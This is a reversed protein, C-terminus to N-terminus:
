KGLNIMSPTLGPNCHIAQKVANQVVGPVKCPKPVIHNHLNSCRYNFHDDTTIGTLWRDHEIDLTEPYVYVVYVPCNDTSVLEASPHTPCKKTVKSGAFQCDKESCMKSGTCAAYRIRVRRKKGAINMERVNDNYHGKSLQNENYLLHHNNGTFHPLKSIDKVYGVRPPKDTGSVQDPFVGPYQYQSTETIEYWNSSSSLLEEIVPILNSGGSKRHKKKPCSHQEEATASCLLTWKRSGDVVEKGKSTVALTAAIQAKYLGTARVTQFNLELLGDGIASYIRDEWYCVEKGRGKGHGRDSDTPPRIKKNKTGCIWM